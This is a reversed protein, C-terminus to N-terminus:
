EMARTGTKGYLDQLKLRLIALLSKTDSPTKVRFTFWKVKPSMKFYQFQNRFKETLENLEHFEQERLIPVSVSTTFFGKSFHIVCVVRTRYSARYGWGEGNEYWHMSWQIRPELRNLKEEFRKLEIAPLVGLLTDIEPRSPSHKYNDFPTTDNATM